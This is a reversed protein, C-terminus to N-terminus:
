APATTTTTTTTSTTTTTAATVTFFPSESHNVIDSLGEAKFSLEQWTEGVLSFNGNPSIKVKWMDYKYNPGKANDAIFRLAYVKSAEQHARLVTTGILSARFFMQLNVIAMEDLVFNVTYGEELTAEEDKMKRGSRSSKHPLTSDTPVIQLDPCNGVDVYTGPAGGSFEAIELVGSGITYLESSPSSPIM